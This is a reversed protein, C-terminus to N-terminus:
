EPKPSTPALRCIGHWLAAVSALLMVTSFLAVWPASLIYSGAASIPSLVGALIFATPTLTCAPCVVWLGAVAGAAQTRGTTQRPRPTGGSVALGMWLGFMFSLLCTSAFTYPRLLIGFHNEPIWLLEPGWGLPGGTVEFLPPPSAHPPLHGGPDFMVTGQLIALIFGYPLAAALSVRRFKPRSLGARITAFNPSFRKWWGLHEQPFCIGWVLALMTVFSVNLWLLPYVALWLDRITGQIMDRAVILLQVTLIILITVQLSLAVGNRPTVERHGVGPDFETKGSSEMWTTAVPDSNNLWSM